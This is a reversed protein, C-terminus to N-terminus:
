ETEKRQRAHIRDRYRLWARVLEGVWLVPSTLLIIWGWQSLSLPQTRFVEGGFQVILIQGVLIAVAILEM